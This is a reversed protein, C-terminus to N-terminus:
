YTTAASNFTARAGHILSKLDNITDKICDKKLKSNAFLADIEAATEWGICSYPRQLDGYRAEIDAVHRELREVTELEKALRGLQERALAQGKLIGDYKVLRLAANFESRNISGDHDGDVENFLKNMDISPTKFGASSETRVASLTSSLRHFSQIHVARSAGVRSALAKLSMTKASHMVLSSAQLPLM